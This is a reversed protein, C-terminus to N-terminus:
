RLDDVCIRHGGKTEGCHQQQGCPPCQGPNRQKGPLGESKSASPPGVVDLDRPEAPIYCASTGLEGRLKGVVADFGAMDKVEGIQIWRLRRKCDLLLTIPIPPKPPLLGFKVLVSQIVGASTTDILSRPSDPMVAALDGPDDDGLQIPVFRVQDGWGRQLVKFGPFENKCPPCYTAWLNVVAVTRSAGLASRLSQFTADEGRVKFRADLLPSLERPPAVWGSTLPEDPVQPEGPDTTDTPAGAEEETLVVASSSLSSGAAAPPDEGLGWMALGLFAATLAAGIAKVIRLEQSKLEAKPPPTEDLAQM